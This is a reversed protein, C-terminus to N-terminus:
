AMGANAMPLPLFFIDLQEDAEAHLIAQLLIPMHQLRVPVRKFM